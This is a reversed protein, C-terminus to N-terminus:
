FDALDDEVGEGRGAATAADGDDAAAPGAGSRSGPQLRLRKIRRGGGEARGEDGDSGGGGSQDRPPATGSDSGGGGAEGDSDELVPRARAKPRQQQQQQQQQQHSSRRRSIEELAGRKAASLRSRKEEKREEKKSKPGGGGAEEDPEFLPESDPLRAAEAARLRAAAGGRVMLPQSDPEIGFDGPGGDPASPGDLPESDAGSATPEATASDSAAAAGLSASQSAGGRDSQWGDPDSADGRAATRRRGGTGKGGKARKGRRAASDGEGDGGGGGGSGGGDASRRKRAGGGAKKKTAKFLAAAVEADEEAERARAAAEAEAAAREELRLAALAESAEDTGVKSLATALADRVRQRWEAGGRVPIKFYDGDDNRIGAAALLENSWDTCFFDLDADGSPALAYDQLAAGSGSLATWVAEAASLKSLVWEVAGGASLWRSGPVHARQVAELFGLLAAPQPEPVAGASPAAAAAAARAALGPTLAGGPRAPRAGPTGRAAKAKKASGGRVGRRAVAVGARRLWRQLQKHSCPVPLREAIRELCDDSDKFQAHLERLREEDVPARQSAGRGGEPRRTRKRVGREGDSGGAEDGSGGDESAGASEPGSDSGNGGDDSGSGDDDDSADEEIKWKRLMKRVQMAGCGLEMAILNLADAEGRHSAWLESLLRRDVGPVVDRAAARVRGGGGGGGDRRRRPAPRARRKGPPPRADIGLFRLTALVSAADASLSAPLDAVIKDLYDDDALHRAYLDEMLSRDAELLPDGGELDSAWGGDDSAGGDGGGRRRAAGLLGHTRLLKRIQKAQWGGPLEAAVAALDDGKAGKGRHATWLEALRPVLWDPLLGFRLGLRRLERSVQPPGLSSAGLAAALRELNDKDACMGEFLRKLKEEGAPNLLPALAKRQRPARAGGAGTRGEEDGGGGGAAAGWDEGEAEGADGADDGWGTGGFGPLGEARGRAAGRGRKGGPEAGVTLTDNLHYDERMAEVERCSSWFLLDVFLMSAAAEKALAARAGAEDGGAEDGGAEGGEGGEEFALRRAAGDAGGDGAAVAAAQAQQQPVLRAFLGRTVRTALMLFEKCEPRGRLSADALARHFLRLASLQYLMPELNLHEPLVLRWLFSCLAHNLAAGNATDFGQLLWLYFHVVAPVALEQRVRKKVDLAVEAYAAGRGEGDEEEGEEDLEELPARERWRAGAALGEGTLLADGEADREPAAASAAPEESAARQAELARQAAAAASAPVAPPEPSISGERSAGGEAPAADAGAGAGAAAAAAAADTGAAAAAEAPGPGEEAGGDGGRAAAPAEPSARASPAAGAGGDGGDGAEPTAAAAAAAGEGAEAGAAAPEAAAAAGGEGGEAAEEPDAADRLKRRRGGGARRARVYFKGGEKAVLRDYLRLTLHVAEALVAAASRPENRESFRRILKSLVPLLGSEKMDDHLLRRALRESARRDDDTGAREALDLAGLLERLLRTSAHQLPWDKSENRRGGSVESQEVWIKHALRFTEWGMTAGLCGFPSPSGAPARRGGRERLASEEKARVYATAWAALGMWKVFDPAELRSIGLGPELETRLQGMLVNYPGELLQEAFGRLRLLLPQPPARTPPEPVKTGIAAATAPGGAAAAAPAGGAANVRTFTVRASDSHRTVLTSKFRGHRLSAPPAKAARAQAPRAAAARAAADSAAARAAAADSAAARAANDDSASAVDAPSLGRFVEHLVDLLLPADSKFPRESAHGAVLAVLELASEDLLLRLLGDGAAGGRAQMRALRGGKAETPPPDPVALLNRVFTIVLQVTLHDEDSMRPHRSLPGATLAIVAALADRNLFAAKIDRAYRLQTLPEHTYYDVPMTMFTLVKLANFALGEDEPYTVLLPVLHSAALTLEGLKFFADRNDPDDRRLFRQLDKLCALCDPDKEYVRRGDETSVFRGLGGAVSLLLDLDFSPQEEEGYFDDEYFDEEM